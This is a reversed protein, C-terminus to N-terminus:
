RRTSGNGAHANTYGLLTSTSREAKSYGFAPQYNLACGRFGFACPRSRLRVFRKLAWLQLSGDPNSCTQLSLPTQFRALRPAAAIPKRPGLFVVPRNNPRLILKSRQISLIEIEGSRSYSFVVRRAHPRQAGRGTKRDWVLDTWKNAPHNRVLRLELGGCKNVIM